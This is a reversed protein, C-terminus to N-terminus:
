QRLLKVLQKLLQDDPPEQAPETPETAETPEQASEHSDTDESPKESPEDRPEERPKELLFKVLRKLFVVDNRPDPRRARIKMTFYARLHDITTEPDSSQCLPLDDLMSMVYDRAMAVGQPLNPMVPRLSDIAARNLWVRMISKRYGLMDRAFENLEEFTALDTFIRSVLSEKSM